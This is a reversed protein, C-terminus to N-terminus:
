LAGAPTVLLLVLGAIGLAIILICPLKDKM